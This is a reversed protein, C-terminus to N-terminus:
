PKQVAPNPNAEASGQGAKQRKRLNVVLINKVFPSELGLREYSSRVPKDPLVIEAIIAQQESEPWSLFDAWIADNTEALKANEATEKAILEADLTTSAQSKERKKKKYASEGVQAGDEILKRIYGGTSKIKKSGDISEVYAIVERMRAEGEDRIWAIALRESVGHERLATFIPLAKIETYKEVSEKFSTGPIVQQGRTQEDPTKVRIKFKVEVVRRNERRFEPTLEIDSVENIDKVCEKIVRDNLRRFDDYYESSAGTIERLFQLTWWGTAELNKYRVCNEYLNLAQGANFERQIRLNIMAYVAPDFLREALGRDYRYSCVGGSIEGFSIMSMIQWKDKGEETLNFEVTTAALARLADKLSQVDNSAEWGLMTCLIPVPLKHTNNGLLDDYANFLLVNALKRQLLTLTGSTHIAGVSKKLHQDIASSSPTGLQPAEDPADNVTTM